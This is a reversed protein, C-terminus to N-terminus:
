REEFRVRGLLQIPDSWRAEPGAHWSMALRTLDLGDVQMRHGQCGSAAPDRVPNCLWMTGDADAGLTVTICDLYGPAALADRIALEIGVTENACIATASDVDFIPTQQSAIACGAVVLLAPLWALRLPGV